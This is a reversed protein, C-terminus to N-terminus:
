NIAVNGTIKIIINILTQIIKSNVITTCLTTRIKIKQYMLFFKLSEIKRKQLLM